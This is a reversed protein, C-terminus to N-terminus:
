SSRFRYRSSIEYDPALADASQQVPHCSTQQDDSVSTALFRDEAVTNVSAPTGISM